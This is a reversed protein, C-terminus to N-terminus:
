GDPREEANERAPRRNQAYGYWYVAEARNNEILARLQADSLHKGLAAEIKKRVEPILLAAQFTDADSNAARYLAEATRYREREQMGALARHKESLSTETIPLKQAALQTRADNEYVQRLRNCARLDRSNYNLCTAYAIESTRDVLQVGDCEGPTTIRVERCVAAAVAVPEAAQRAILETDPACGLVPVVFAAAAVLRRILHGGSVGGVGTVLILGV